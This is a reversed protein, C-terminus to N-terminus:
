KYETLFQTKDDNFIIMDKTSMYRFGEKHTAINPSIYTYIDLKGSRNILYTDRKHYGDSLYKFDVRVKVENGCKPYRNNLLIKARRKCEKLTIGYEKRYSTM